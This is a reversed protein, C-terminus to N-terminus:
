LGVDGPEGGLYRVLKHAAEQWGYSVDVCYGQESLANLWATQEDTPKNRGFKLELYFGHFGLRAVPLCIDPVGRKVGMAKMRGATAAHRYGGNASHYALMLLPYHSAIKALFAFLAIQEDEEGRKARKRPQAGLARRMQEPTVEITKM